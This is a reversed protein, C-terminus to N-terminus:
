ILPRLYRTWSNFRTGKRLPKVSRDSVTVFVSESRNGTADVAFVEYTRVGSVSQRDEFSTLVTSGVENGNRVVKYAAVDVDDWSPTWSLKVTKDNLRAVLDGPATPATTDVGPEPEPETTPEFSRANYDEFVALHDPHSEVDAINWHYLFYGEIGSDIWRDFQTALDDATPLRYWSDKFEQMVALYRVLGDAKAEAIADDIIDFQCGGWEDWTYSCPYTVLGFVDAAGVWYEYPHGENGDWTTLTVYTPKSADISKILADRAKHDEVAPCGAVRAYTPEDSLQYAYIAPHGKIESVVKKIYDDNWEWDCAKTRHYEGLWVIAKMGRAAIKDLDSVNPMVTVANFGTSDMVDLGSPSSDRGYFGRIFTESADVASIPLLALLLFAALLASACKRLSM